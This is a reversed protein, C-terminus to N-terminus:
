PLNSSAIKDNLSAIFILGLLANLSGRIMANHTEYQFTETPITKDIPTELNLAGNAMSSLQLRFGAILQGGGFDGKNTIKTVSLITGADASSDTTTVARLYYDPNDPVDTQGLTFAQRTLTTGAGGFTDLRWRDCTYGSATFSTGRQAVQMAGNIILNRNSLSNNLWDTRNGQNTAMLAAPSLAM